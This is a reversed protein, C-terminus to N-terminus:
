HSKVYLDRGDALSYIPVSSYTRPELDSLTLIRLLSKAEIGSLAKWSEDDLGISIPDAIHSPAM